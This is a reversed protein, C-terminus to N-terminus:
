ETRQVPETVAQVRWQSAFQLSIAHLFLVVGLMELLEEISFFLTYVKSYEGTYYVAKIVEGVYEVGIAAGVYVVGALIMTNRVTRTVSFLLPLCCLGIIGAFFIGFIIWPAAAVDSDGVVLMAPGNLKEHISVVEDASLYVFAAGLLCWLAGIKRDHKANLVGLALAGIGATWLMMGSFWAPVTQEGQVSFIARVTQDSWFGEGFVKHAFVQCTHLLHVVLVGALWCGTIMLCPRHSWRIAESDDAGDSKLHILRGIASM